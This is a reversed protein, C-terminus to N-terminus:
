RDKKAYAVADALNDYKFGRYVYKEGDRSINFKEMALAPDRNTAEEQAIESAIRPLQSVDSIAAYARKLEALATAGYPEVRAIAERANQDYKALTEWVEDSDSPTAPLPNRVKAAAIQEQHRREADKADRNSRMVFAVVWGIPGLLIGLLCGTGSLNHRSLIAAGVAGFLLWALLLEM